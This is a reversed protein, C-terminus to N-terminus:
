QQPKVNLRTYITDAIPDVANWGKRKYAVEYTITFPVDLSDTDTFKVTVNKLWGVHKGNETIELVNCLDEIDTVLAEQYSVAEEVSNVYLTCPWTVTQVYSYRTLHRARGRGPTDLLVVPRPLNLNTGRRFSNLGATAKFWTQLTDLEKVYEM